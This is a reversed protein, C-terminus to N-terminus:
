AAKRRPVPLQRLIRSDLVQDAAAPYRRGVRVSVLRGGSEEEQWDRISGRFDSFSAVDGNQLRIVGAADDLVGGMWAGWQKFWFATGSEACWDRVSRFLRPDSARANGGSEGGAIVWSVGALVSPDLRGLAPEISVFHVAAGIDLLRSVRHAHRGSEVTAGLWVNDPSGGDLWWEMSRRSEPVEKRVAELRARFLEPRKTCLLHDIARCDKITSVLSWLWRAPVAPDLWDSMSNTFVRPRPLSPDAAYAANIHRVKDAYGDVWLRPVGEGWHLNGAPDLTRGVFRDFSEAYCYRCAESVKECGWWQNTSYHWWDAANPQVVPPKM